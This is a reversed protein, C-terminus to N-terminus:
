ACFMINYVDSVLQSFNGQALWSKVPVQYLVQVSESSQDTNEVTGSSDGKVGQHSSYTLETHLNNLTMNSEQSVASKMEVYDECDTDM